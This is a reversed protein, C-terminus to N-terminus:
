GKSNYGENSLVLQTTQKPPTMPVDPQFFQPKMNIYGDNISSPTKIKKDKIEEYMNNDNDSSESDIIQLFM